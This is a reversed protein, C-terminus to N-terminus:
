LFCHCCSGRSEFPGHLTALFQTTSLSRSASSFLLLLYLLTNVLVPTHRYYTSRCGLSTLSIRPPTTEQLPDDGQLTPGQSAKLQYLLSRGETHFQDQHQGYRRICPQPLLPHSWHGLSPGPDMRANVYSAFSNSPGADAPGHKYLKIVYGWRASPQRVM